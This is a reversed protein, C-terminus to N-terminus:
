HKTRDLPNEHKEKLLEELSTEISRQIDLTVRIQEVETLKAPDTNRRYKFDHNVLVCLQYRKDDKKPHCLFGYYREARLEFVYCNVYKGGSESKNWGHYSNPKIKGSVWWDFKTKLHREQTEGLKKFAEKATVRRDKSLLFAVGRRQHNKATILEINYEIHM